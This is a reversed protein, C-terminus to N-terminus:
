NGAGGADLVPQEAAKTKYENFDKKLTEFKQKWGEIEKTLKQILTKDSLSQKELTNLKGQIEGREQIAKRERDEMLKIREAQEDYKKNMDDGLKSLLERASELADAETADNEIKRKRFAFFWSVAQLLNTVLLMVIPNETLADWFNM